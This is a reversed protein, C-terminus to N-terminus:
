QTLGFGASKIEDHEICVRRGVKDTERWTQHPFAPNPQTPIRLHREFWGGISKETDQEYPMVTKSISLVGNAIRDPQNVLSAM